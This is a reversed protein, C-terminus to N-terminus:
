RLCGGLRPAALYRCMVLRGVARQPSRRGAPGAALRCWGRSEQQLMPAVGSQVVGQLMLEDVLAFGQDLMDQPVCDVSALDASGGDGVLEPSMRGPYKSKRDMMGPRGGVRRVTCTSTSSMIMGLRVRDMPYSAQLRCPTVVPSNPPPERAEKPSLSITASDM